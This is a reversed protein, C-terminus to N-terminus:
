KASEWSAQNVEAQSPSMRGARPAETVVVPSNGAAIWEDVQRQLEERERQKARIEHSLITM